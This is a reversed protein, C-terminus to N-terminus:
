NLQGYVLVQMQDPKLYQRLTQNIDNLTYSDISENFHILYDVSVGYYDLAILNYALRDATELARPLQAKVLNKAAALEESSAGEDLFKKMVAFSEDVVQQATPNKSFTSIIWSGTVKKPDMMSYISYTLGLDDRVRQNLRSAFSGGLMENVLRLKLYDPHNRPIGPQIFRIETQAKHPSDLKTISGKTPPQFPVEVTKYNASAKWTSFQQRVANEIEPSLRGTVALRAQNPVYNKQYFQVIEQRNVKKASEETGLLDRGYPHNQYFNKEMILDASTGSKDQRAKLQVLMQQRAREVEQSPFSPTTLIEKFLPLVSNFETVLMSSSFITFDAGPEVELASGTDAFLDAIELAKKKETGQDLLNATMFNLGPRDEPENMLGVPILLQLSVKPLSDEQVFYIKLGNPLVESRENKYQKRDTSTEATTISHTCALL